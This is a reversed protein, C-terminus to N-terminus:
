FPTDKEFDENAEMIPPTLSPEIDTLLKKPTNDFYGTPYITREPLGQDNVIFTFSEFSENRSADCKVLTANSEDKATRMAAECKNVFEAGLHGRANNGDKNTHLVCNIHCDYLSSWSM